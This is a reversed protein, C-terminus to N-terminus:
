RFCKDRCGAFHDRPQMRCRRGDDLFRDRSGLACLRFPRRHARRGAAADQLAGGLDHALAIALKGLEFREIGALRDLFRDDRIRRRAGVAKSNKPPM